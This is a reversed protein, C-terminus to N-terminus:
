STPAQRMSQLLSGSSQTQPKEEAAVGWHRIRISTLMDHLLYDCVVRAPVYGGRGIAIIIDPQYGADRIATALQKALECSHDWSILECPFTDPMM